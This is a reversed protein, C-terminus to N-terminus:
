LNAQLYKQLVLWSWLFVREDKQGNRHKLHVNDVWQSNHKLVSQDIVPIDWDKLWKTLPIGFGKKSRHLINAPLIEKYAAKLLYKTVCNRYKFSAPLRRAFEVLDVDLFPARVELSVMMSARDVKTLIDDQLYFRTFYESAKDTIDPATSQEWAAIADAYVTEYSVPEDLLEAIEKAELPSMWAPIWVSQPYDLGRLTRKLKFDLSMNGEAVPLRDIATRLTKRAIKPLIRCYWQSLRLAKIPDYGAFLEDGGDGGIAVTVHKRAFNSLLWTPLLSADAMPEDLRELVNGAISRAADIGLMDQYNLDVCKQDM